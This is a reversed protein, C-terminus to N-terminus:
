NKIKRSFEAVQAIVNKVIEASSKKESFNKDIEKVITSGVVVGDVDIRSFEQAQNPTQIGFGIVIPLDSVKRLNQLNNKNDSISASKTGTIGLMSVLYLFGGSNKTIKKARTSDTMPAILRILDLNSGLIKPLIEVEEEQPLDVILFGDIGSKAANVFIKDLGYKFVPNYYTMLVLPTKKDDKRFEVAMELTKELSMGNAISRKAANEIIPGDGSPDLFPVGLEIIDVGAKPLAKLLELSTKYDPDGACIYAVFACQKKAKLESFKQEIRKM